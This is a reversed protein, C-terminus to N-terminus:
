GREASIPEPPCPVDGAWIWGGAHIITNARTGAPQLCQSHAVDRSCVRLLPVGDLVVPEVRWGPGYREALQEAVARHWSTVRTM